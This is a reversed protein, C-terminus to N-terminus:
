IWGSTHWCERPASPVFVGERGRPVFLLRSRVCLCPCARRHSVRAYTHTRACVRALEPLAQVSMQAPVAPSGDRPALECVCCPGTVADRVSSSSESQGPSGRTVLHLDLNCDGPTLTKVTLVLSTCSRGATSKSPQIKRCPKPSKNKIRELTSRTGSM